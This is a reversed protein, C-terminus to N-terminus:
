LASVTFSVAFHGWILHADQGGGYWCIMLPFFVAGPIWGLFNLYVTHFPLNILRRRCFELYARSVTQSALLARRCRALPWVLSVVLGLCIPYALANYLPLALHEFVDQQPPKLRDVILVKNYYINFFSGAANSAVIVLFLAAFPWRRALAHLPRRRPRPPPPDLQPAVPSSM